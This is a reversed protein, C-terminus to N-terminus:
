HHGQGHGGDSAPVPPDLSIEAPTWNMHLQLWGLFFASGIALGVAGLQWWFNAVGASASLPLVSPNVQSWVAAIIIWLLVLPAWAGESLAHCAKKWNVAFLWWAIWVLLPSWTLGLQGLQVVLRGFVSALDVFTQLLETVVYCGELGVATARGNQLLEKIARYNVIWAVDVEWLRRSGGAVGDRRRRDADAGEAL